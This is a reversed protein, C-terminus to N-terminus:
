TVPRTSQIIRCAFQFCIRLSVSLGVEGFLIIVSAYTASVYGVLMDDESRYAIDIASSYLSMLQQKVWDIRPPTKGARSFEFYCKYYIVRAKLCNFLAKFYDGKSPGKEALEDVFQFAQLSDVKQLKLTLIPLSDYSSLDKKSLAVVWKDANLEPTQAAIFEISFLFFLFYIRPTAECITFNIKVLNLFLENLYSHLVTTFIM